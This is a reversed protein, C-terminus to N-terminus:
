AHNKNLWDVVVPLWYRAFEVNTWGQKKSYERMRKEIEPFRWLFDNFWDLASIYSATAPVFVGGVQWGTHTENDTPPELRM